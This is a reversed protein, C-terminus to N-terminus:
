AVLADSARALSTAIELASAPLAAVPPPWRQAPTQASWGSAPEPILRPIPDPGWITLEREEQGVRGRVSLWGAGM